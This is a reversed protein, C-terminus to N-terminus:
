SKAATTKQKIAKNIANDFASVTNNLTVQKGDLFFTPTADVGLKTGYNEDANIVNDVQESSYDTNFTNVNLGLQKAYQDFDTLPSSSNIWTSATENSDYYIQNQEYLTDHMQWYKNQMGAAEAARAGAFANQHISTLPFNRFQFQIQNFYQSVVQKVTSYYEGCYPCQYDGYEVLTVHDQDNGEVHNSLTNSNGSNNKSGHSSLAFIGAFIIIVAIIVGIFGRSM